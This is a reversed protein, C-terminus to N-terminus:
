QNVGMDQFDYNGLAQLFLINRLRASFVSLARQYVYPVIGAQQMTLQDVQRYNALYQQRDTTTRSQSILNNIQPENIEAVNTNGEASIADGDTLGYYYGYPAPFDPAWVLSIIGMGRKKVDSPVGTVDFFSSQDLQIPNVKINVRGLAQQVSQFLDQDKKANAYAMNTTFGDPKGCQQLEGRAADLSGTNDTGNPYMDPPPQYGELTPPYTSIAIDGGAYPGGRARQMSSKSVAYQVAKRCHENDFPAVTQQLSLFLLAGTAGDARRSQYQSTLVTGQNNVQVGSGAIAADAQNSM